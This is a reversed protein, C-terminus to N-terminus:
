EAPKVDEVGMVQLVRAGGGRTLVGMILVPKDATSASIKDLFKDDGKLDFAIPYPELASVVQYYALGGSTVNMKTVTLPMENGRRTVRWQAIAPVGDPKKAAYAEMRLSVPMNRAAFAAAPVLLLCLLFSLLLSRRVNSRM